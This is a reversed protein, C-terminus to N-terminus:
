SICTDSVLPISSVFVHNNGFKKQWRRISQNQNISINFRIEKEKFNPHAVTMQQKVGYQKQFFEELLALQSIDTTYIDLRPCLETPMTRIYDFAYKKVTAQEDIVNYYPIIKDQIYTYLNGDLNVIPYKTDEKALRTDLMKREHEYDTTSFAYKVPSQPIRKQIDDAIAKFYFPTM